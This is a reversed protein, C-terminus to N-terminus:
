LPIDAVPSLGGPPLTAASCIDIADREDDELLIQDEDPSALVQRMESAQAATILKDRALAELLDFTDGHAESDIVAQLLRQVLAANAGYRIVALEAARKHSKGPM